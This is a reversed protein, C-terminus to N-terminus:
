LSKRRVHKQSSSDTIFLHRSVSPSIQHLYVVHNSILKIRDELQQIKDIKKEMRNIKEIVQNM